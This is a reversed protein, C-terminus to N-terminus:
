SVPHSKVDSLQLSPQGGRRSITGFSKPRRPAFIRERL